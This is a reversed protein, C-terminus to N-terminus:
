LEAEKLPVAEALALVLAHLLVHRQHLSGRRASLDELVVALPGEGAVKSQLHPERQRSERQRTLGLEVQM